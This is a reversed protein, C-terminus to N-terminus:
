LSQLFVAASLRGRLECCFVMVIDATLAPNLSVAVTACGGVSCVAYVYM